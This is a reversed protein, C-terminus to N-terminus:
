TRSGYSRSGISLQGHGRWTTHRHGERNILRQKRPLHIQRSTESLSRRTHCHQRNTNYCKYETKNANVHLGSKSVCVSRIIEALRGSETITLLFFLVQRITSKATGTSRLTSTFSLSFLSLYRSRAQSNFNNWSEHQDIIIIIVIIILNRYRESKCKEM